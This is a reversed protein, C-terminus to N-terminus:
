FSFFFHDHFYKSSDKLCPEFTKICRPPKELCISTSTYQLSDDFCKYIHMAPRLTCDCPSICSTGKVTNRLFAQLDCKHKALILFYRKQIQWFNDFIPFAAVTMHWLLDFDDLSTSPKVIMGAAKWPELCDFSSATACCRSVAEDQAHVSRECTGAPPVFIRSCIKELDETMWGRSSRSESTVITAWLVLVDKPFLFFM